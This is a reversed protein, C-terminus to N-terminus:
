FKELSILHQIWCRSMETAYLSTVCCGAFIAQAPHVMWIEGTKLYREGGFDFHTTTFEFSNKEAVAALVKLAEDTVEPGTGDGPIVAIKM